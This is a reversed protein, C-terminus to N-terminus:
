FCVAYLYTEGDRCGGERESERERGDKEACTQFGDVTRTGTGMIPLCNWRRPKRLYNLLPRRLRWKQGLDRKTKPWEVMSPLMSRTNYWDWRKEVFGFSALITQAFVKCSVYTCVCVCVVCVRWICLYAYIRDCKTWLLLIILEGYNM